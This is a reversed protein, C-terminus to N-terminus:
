CLSCKLNSVWLHLVVWHNGLYHKCLYPASSTACGNSYDLVAIRYASIVLMPQASLQWGMLTTNCLSGTPLALSWLNYKLNSVYLHLTVWYNLIYLKCLSAATLPAWGYTYHLVTISYTSSVFM